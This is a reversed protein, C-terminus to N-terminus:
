EGAPDPFAGPRPFPRPAPRKGKPPRRGCEEPFPWTQRLLRLRDPRFRVKKLFAAGTAPPFLLAITMREKRMAKPKSVVSGTPSGSSQCGPSLPRAAKQYGTTPSATPPRTQSAQSPSVRIKGESTAATRASATQTPSVPPRCRSPRASQQSPRGAETGTSLRRSIRLSGCRPVNPPMPRTRTSKALAAASAARAGACPRPMTRAAVAPRQSIRGAPRSGCSRGPPM